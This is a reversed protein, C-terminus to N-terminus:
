WRGAKLEVHGRFEQTGYNPHYKRGWGVFLSWKGKGLDWGCQILLRPKNVITM